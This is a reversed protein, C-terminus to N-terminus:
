NATEWFAVVGRLNLAHDGKEVYDSGHHDARGRRVGGTSAPEPKERAAQDTSGGLAPKKLEVAGKRPGPLPVAGVLRQDAPEQTEAWVVFPETLRELDGLALAEVVLELLHRDGVGGM